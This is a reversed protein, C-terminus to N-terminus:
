NALEGCVAFQRRNNDVNFIAKEFFFLNLERWWAAHGVRNVIDSALTECLQM